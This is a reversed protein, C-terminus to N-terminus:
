KTYKTVAKHQAALLQPTTLSLFQKYHILDIQTSTFLTKLIRRIFFLSSMQNDVLVIRSYQKQSTKLFRTIGLPDEDPPNYLYAAESSEGEQVIAMQKMFKGIALNYPRNLSYVMVTAGMSKFNRLYWELEEEMPLYQTPINASSIDEFFRSVTVRAFTATRDFFEQNESLIEKSFFVWTNRAREILHRVERMDSLSPEEKYTSGETVMNELSPEGKKLKNSLRNLNLKNLPFKVKLKTTLASFSMKRGKNKPKPSMTEGDDEVSSVEEEHDITMADDAEISQCCKRIKHQSAEERIGMLHILTEPNIYDTGDLGKLTKLASNTPGEYCLSDFALFFVCNELPPPSSAGIPSASNEESQPPDEVKFTPPPKNELLYALLEGFQTIEGYHGEKAVDRRASVIVPQSSSRELVSKMNLSSKPSEQQESDEQHDELVLPLTGDQSSPSVQLSDLLEMLKKVPVEDSSFNAEEMAFSELIFAMFFIILSTISNRLIIM